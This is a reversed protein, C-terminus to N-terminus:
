TCKFNNVKNIITKADQSDINLKLEFYSVNIEVENKHFILNYLLNKGYM